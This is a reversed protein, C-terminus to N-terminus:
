NLPKSGIAAYMPFFGVFGIFRKNADPIWPADIGYDVREPVSQRPKM